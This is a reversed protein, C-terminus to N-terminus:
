ESVYLAGLTGLTGLVLALLPYVYSLILGSNFALQVAVTYLAALVAADLLSRWRRVRLGGLPVAAGLLVILLINLWGGADRLPVGHLLTLMENALIEPGAMPRSGSTATTHVDQFIAASIGIIVTKGRVLAAPFKGTLVKAFSISTFTEPPGAFD